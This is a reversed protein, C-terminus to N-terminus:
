KVPAADVFSDKVDDVGLRRLRRDFERLDSQVRSVNRLPLPSNLSDEYYKLFGKLGQLQTQVEPKVIKQMEEIHSYVQKITYRIRKDSSKEELATWLDRYWAKILAYHQQYNEPPNNEPAPYEQPELVPIFNADETQAKKKQRIFKKRLPECASLSMSMVLVAIIAVATKKGM